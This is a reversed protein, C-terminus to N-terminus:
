GSWGGGKSHTTDGELDTLRVDCWGLFYISNAMSPEMSEGRLWDAEISNLPLHSSELAHVLNLSENADLLWCGAREVALATYKRKIDDLTLSSEPM